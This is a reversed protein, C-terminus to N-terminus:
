QRSSVFRASLNIMEVHKWHLSIRKFWHLKRLLYNFCAWTCYRSCIDHFLNEPFLWAARSRILIESLTDCLHFCLQVASRLSTDTFFKEEAETTCSLVYVEALYRTFVTSAWLYIWDKSCLPNTKKKEKKKEKAFLKEPCVLKLTNSYNKKLYFWQKPIATKIEVSPSFKSLHRESPEQLIALQGERKAQLPLSNTAIPHDANRQMTYTWVHAAAAELCRKSVLM